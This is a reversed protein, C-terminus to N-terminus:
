FILDHTLNGLFEWRFKRVGCICPSDVPSRHLTSVSRRLRYVQFVDPVNINHTPPPCLGFRGSADTLMREPPLVNRVGVLSSCSKQRLKVGAPVTIAM